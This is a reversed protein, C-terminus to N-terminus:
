LVYKSYNLQLIFLIYQRGGNTLVELVLERLAPKKEHRIKDYEVKKRLM